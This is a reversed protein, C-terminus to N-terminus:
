LLSRLKEIDEDLTEVPEDDAIAEQLEDICRHCFEGGYTNQTIEFYDECNEIIPYLEEPTKVASLIHLAIKKFLEPLEYENMYTLLLTGLYLVDEEKKALFLMGVYNLRKIKEESNLPDILLAEVLELEISETLYPKLAKYQESILEPDAEVTELLYDSIVSELDCACNSQILDWREQPSIKSLDSGELAEIFLDITDESTSANFLSMLNLTHQGEAMYDLNDCLISMTVREPFLRRWLEFVILYLRDPIELSGNREAILLETAEEPSECDAILEELYAPNSDIGENSLMELLEEDSIERYNLVEWGEVADDAIEGDEWDYRLENYYSKPNFQKM